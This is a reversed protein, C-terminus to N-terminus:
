MKQLERAGHHQSGPESGVCESYGGQHYALHRVRARPESSRASARTAPISAWFPCDVALSDSHGSIARVVDFQPADRFCNKVPLIARVVTMPQVSSPDAPVLSDSAIVVGAEEFRWQRKQASSENRSRSRLPAVSRTVDHSPAASQRSGSERARALPKDVLPM